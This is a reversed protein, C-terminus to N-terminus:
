DYFLMNLHYFCINNFYRFFYFNFRTALFAFRKLFNCFTLFLIVFYVFLSPSLSKCTYSPCNQLRRNNFHFGLAAPHPSVKPPPPLLLFTRAFFCDLKNLTKSELSWLTTHSVNVPFFVSDNSLCKCLWKWNTRYNPTSFRHM